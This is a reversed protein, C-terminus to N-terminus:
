KWCFSTSDAAASNTSTKVGRHDITFTACKSDDAMADVATATLNFCWISQGTTCNTNAITLNYHTEKSTFNTGDWGCSNNSQATSSNFYSPPSNTTYFRAQEAACSLLFDYGDSRKAKKVQEVYSPFAVAALIGIIAATIMVEILTFGSSNHKTNEM